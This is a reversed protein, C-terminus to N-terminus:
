NMEIQKTQSLNGANDKVWIYYTGTEEVIFKNSTQFGNDAPVEKTKSIAYGKIGSGEKNLKTNIDNAEITITKENKTINTITPSTKDLKGITIRKTTINGVADKLYVIRVIDEYVDGTLKYERYYKNNDLQGLQYDEESGLAIQVNGSGEDTAEIKIQKLISWDTNYATPSVLTPAKTDIKGITVKGEGINGCRDKAKVILKKSTATEAVVNFTKTFTTGDKSATSWNSIVTGDSDYLAMEVISDWTEEFKATITASRSFETTSDAGTATISLAKPAYNDAILKHSGCYEVVNSKNGSYTYDMILGIDSKNTTSDKTTQLTKTIDISGDNNQIFSTDIVSMGIDPVRMIAGLGTREKLTLGDIINEIHWMYKTTMEDVIKYTSSVDYFKKRCAACKGYRITKHNADKYTYGCVVCTGINGTDCGLKIGNADYCRQFDTNTSCVGCQYRHGYDGVATIWSLNSHAKKALTVKYGCSDTCYKIQAPESSKCSETGTIQINHSVVNIKNNCFICQKWHSTEDYKTEYVHSCAVVVEEGSSSATVIEIAENDKISQIEITKEEIIGKETVAKFTYSGNSAIEYTTEEAYVINGDPKVIESIEGEEVSAKITLNVKDVGTETVDRIIELEPEEAININGIYEVRLDSTIKYMYDKYSLYIKIVPSGKIGEIKVNKVKGDINESVYDLNCSNGNSIRETNIDLLALEIKEKGESITMEEKARKATTLIGNNGILLNISAGALIILVIITVVLAILTIGSNFPKRVEKKKM